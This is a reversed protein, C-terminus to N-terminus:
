KPIVEPKFSKPTKKLRVILEILIAIDLVFFSLYIFNYVPLHLSLLILVGFQLATTIKGSVLSTYPFDRWRGLALVLFAFLFLVGDRSLFAVFQWPSLIKEYFLVGIVFCMFFKDMLPDLVAGFKTTHKYRRAFYGDTVDTIIALAVVVWRFQYSSLLFLLALPARLISLGNSLTFM